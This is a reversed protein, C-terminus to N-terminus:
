KMDQGHETRSRCACATGLTYYAHYKHLMDCFGGDKLHWKAM